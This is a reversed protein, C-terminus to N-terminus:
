SPGVVYPIVILSDRIDVESGAATLIDGIDISRYGVVLVLEQGAVSRGSMDTDSIGRITNRVRLGVVLFWASSSTSLDFDIVFALADLRSMAVRVVGAEM